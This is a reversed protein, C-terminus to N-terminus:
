LEGGLSPKRSFDDGEPTAASVPGAQHGSKTATTSRGELLAELREVQAKLNAMDERVKQIPEMRQLSAEILRDIGGQLQGMGSVVVKGGWRILSHLFESSLLAPEEGNNDMLVKALTPVTIDKGSPNELVRVEQGARVLRAIEQLSIYRKDETDYLKRNEYRKVIRAVIEHGSTV